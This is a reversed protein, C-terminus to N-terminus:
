VVSKRDRQETFPAGIREYNWLKQLKEKITNRYPIQSLYAFTFENQKKVWEATEASKDDELWRYPDPMPTGFYTDVVEGKKTSPYNMPESNTTTQESTTTQNCSVLLALMTGTLLFHKM